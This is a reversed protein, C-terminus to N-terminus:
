FIWIKLSRPNSRGVTQFVLIALFHGSYMGKKECRTKIGSVDSGAGPETVCYAAQLPEEILRGLYKQKLSDNAAVLLPM